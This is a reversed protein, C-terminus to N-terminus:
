AIKQAILYVHGEPYQDYEVHRCFCGCDHLIRVFEEVGLTSYGFALGEMTGTIEGAEGGGCTFLLVGQPHLGACLKRLVPEQEERPLHFTSDWATIFDYKQPLPWQCIDGVHFTAAPSREQALAIMNPSIDMGTATFGRALLLDIFRGHSGCGVDLSAGPKAVFKLACELAALGYTEPIAQQYWRALQDYHAGIERPHM